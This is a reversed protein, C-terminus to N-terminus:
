RLSFSTAATANWAVSLVSGGASLNIESATYLSASREFGYYGGVPYRQTSTGTGITVTQAQILLGFVICLMTILPKFPRSMKGLLFVSM